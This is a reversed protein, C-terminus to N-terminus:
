NTEKDSVYRRYDEWLDKAATVALVFIIPAFGLLPNFSSVIPVCNILALILFYINAVRKFQESLNKFLFNLRTYKTTKIRNNAIKPNSAHNPGFYVQHFAIDAISSKQRRATAELQDRFSVTKKFVAGSEVERAAAAASDIANGEHFSNNKSSSSGM